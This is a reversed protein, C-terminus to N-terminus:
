FYNVSKAYAQRPLEDQSSILHEVSKTVKLNYKKLCVTILIFHQTVISTKDFIYYLLLIFFIGNETQIPVSYTSKVAPLSAIHLKNIETKRQEGQMVIFIISGLINITRSFTTNKINWPPPTLNGWLQGKETLYSLILGGGGVYLCLTLKSPLPM